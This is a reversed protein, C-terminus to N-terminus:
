ISSKLVSFPAVINILRDITVAFLTLVSAESSTTSIFGLLKCLWSTKWATANEIYRGRFYLDVAAIGIMYIGMLFDALALYKVMFSSALKEDQVTRWVFVFFNGFLAVAGLLWLFTRLTNNSMLDECLPFQDKEPLCQDDALNVFCCLKYDDSHLFSLRLTNFDQKQYVGIKNQSINLWSLSPVDHFLNQKLMRINSAALDLDTVSDLGRFTGDHITGLNMNKLQISKINSLGTFAGPEIYTVPNGELQLSALNALGRFSNLTLVSILNDSIDLRYLNALSKFIDSLLEVIGNHSIDLEALGTFGFLMEPTFNTNNFGLGIGKAQHPISPM